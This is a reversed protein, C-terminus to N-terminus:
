LRWFLRRRYLITALILFGVLYTMAYALSANKLASDTPHDAPLASFLPLYLTQYVFTKLAIPKGDDGAWSIGISLKGVIGSLVFVLLANMGLVALPAAWRHYGKLDVLWYCVGLLLLAYGGTLFVFSPTWLGKNVPMLAKDLVYGLAAAVAGAVLLGAAKEMEPRSTRLWLGALTGFVVTGIAPLTSLLGEPEWFLQGEKSPKVYCHYGLFTGDVHTCMNGEISLNGAGHGPVPVALMLVSYVAMLALASALLGKWDFFLTLTAAALYCLAIRQLVGLIRLNAPDLIGKISGAPLAILAEGVLFLLAARLLIKRFLVGRGRGAAEAEARRRGLSFALAVGVAFLFFPFVLDTPTCGHWDAHEFPPYIHAWSGPNNALVMGGIAVGRFVDLSKLRAPRPPPATPPTAMAQDAYSLAEAPPAAVLDPPHTATMPKPDPLPNAPDSYGIVARIRIMDPRRVFWPRPSRLPVDSLASPGRGPDPEVSAGSWIM